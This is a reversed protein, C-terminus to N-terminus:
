EGAPRFASQFNHKSASPSERPLIQLHAFSGGRPKSSRRSIPTTRMKVGHPARRSRDLRSGPYTEPSIQSDISSPEEITPNYGIQSRIYVCSFQVSHLPLPPAYFLSRPKNVAHRRHTVSEAYVFRQFTSGPHAGRCVRPSGQINELEISTIKSCDPLSTKAPAACGWGFFDRGAAPWLDISGQRRLAAAWRSRPRGPITLGFLRWLRVRGRAPELECECPLSPEM